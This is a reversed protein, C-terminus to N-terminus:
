DRRFDFEKLSGVPVGKVCPHNQMAEVPMLVLPSIRLLKADTGRKNGIILHGQPEFRAIAIGDFGHADMTEIIGNLDIGNEARAWNLGVRVVVQRRTAKLVRELADLGIFNNKGIRQGLVGLLLSVDYSNPELPYEYVSGVDFTVNSLGRTAAEKRAHEVRIPRIEVGHVSAVRKAVEMTLLGEACGMDLVHDTPRFDTVLEVDGWRYSLPESYKGGQTLRSGWSQSELYYCGNTRRGRIKFMLRDFLSM